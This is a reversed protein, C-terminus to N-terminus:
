AETLLFGYRYPDESDLIAQHLGTLYATATLAPIIAPQDGVKTEEVVKARHQSGIWGNELVIQQGVKVEGKAFCTAICAASMTGAPSRCSANDGYINVIKYDIGKKPNKEFFTVLSITNLSRDLPHCVEVQKNVEELLSMGLAFIRKMNKLTIDVKVAHADIFAYWLGGFAIDATVKGLNPVNFATTKLFFTPVSQYTIDGVVGNKVQAEVEVIGGYTDLRIKTVPEIAEIMGTEILAKTVSFTSDGCMEFYQTASAYIVGFDARQHVPELVFVGLMNDFGRPEQFLATRLDDLNSKFYAYKEKMTKGSVKPIGGLVVRTPEGCSHTDVCQVIRSIIM